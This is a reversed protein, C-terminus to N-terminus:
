DAVSESVSVTEPAAVSDEVKVMVPFLLITDPVVAFSWFKNAVVAPVTVTPPPGMLRPADPDAVVTSPVSVTDCDAVSDSVRATEPAAVSDEVSAEPAIVVVPVSVMDPFPLMSDPVTAFAWFKNAVVVPARVMPAPGMVNVAEPFAVVTLPVSVTDCDAVSESVRVTEPAAVNDEVKVMVPFLLITDPM